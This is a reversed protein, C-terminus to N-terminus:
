ETTGLATIAPGYNPPLIKGEHISGTEGWRCHTCWVILELTPHLLLARERNPARVANDDM